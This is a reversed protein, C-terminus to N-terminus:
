FLLEEWAALCVGVADAEDDTQPARGLILEAAAIMEEKSGRGKGLLAKKVQSTTVPMYDIKAEEAAEQVRTQLGVCIETAAGGRFHAQEFVIVDPKVMAILEVVWARFKLFLIGNSQGRKKVFSQVGSEVIKEDELVAWGTNTACDFGLIKM